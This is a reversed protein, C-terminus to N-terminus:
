RSLSGGAWLVVYLILAMGAVIAAWALVFPWFGKRGRLM